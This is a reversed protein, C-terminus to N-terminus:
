LLVEAFYRSTPFFPSSIKKVTLKYDEVFDESLELVPTGTLLYVKKVSKSNKVTDIMYILKKEYQMKAIKKNSFNKFLVTETNLQFKNVFFDQETINVNNLGLDHQAIRLFDIYTSKRDLLVIEKDPNLIAIIIGPIGGGTGIDTFTKGTILNSFEYSDYIERKIVYETDSSSIINNNNHWKLLLSLYNEIVLRKDHPIKPFVEDLIVSVKRTM